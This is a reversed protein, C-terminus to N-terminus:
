DLKGFIDEFRIESFNHIGKIVKPMNSFERLQQDRGVVVVGFVGAAQASQIGSLADEFILCKQPKLRIKQAALIYPDPAPKGPYRGDSCQIFDREFWRRLGLAEYSPNFAEATQSTAITLPIDHISLENM